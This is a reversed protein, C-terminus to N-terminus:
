DIEIEKYGYANIVHTKGVLTDVTEDPRYVHIHGHIHYRPQFKEIFWRFAYIGQHPLDSKDHIGAPPAHTVFIDLYRGYRIRNILLKPILNFVNLWMESQSYQYPGERYRLSGEMGALILGNYHVSKGHLNTGGAIFQNQYSNNSSFEKDHNGLVYFFPVDLSSVLYEHYEYPLDGCSILLKIDLFRSKTHQSYLLPIVLDSVALLKM